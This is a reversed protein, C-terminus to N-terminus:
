LHLFKCSIGEFYLLWLWADRYQEKTHTLKLCVCMIVTGCHMWYCRGRTSFECWLSWLSLVRIAQKAFFLTWYLFLQLTVANIDVRINFSCCLKIVPKCRPQCRCDELFGLIGSSEIAKPCMIIKKWEDPQLNTGISQYNDQQMVWNPVLKLQQDPRPLEHNILHRCPRGFLM